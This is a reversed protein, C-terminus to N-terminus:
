NITDIYENIVNYSMGDYLIKYDLRLKFEEFSQFRFVLGICNFLLEMFSPSHPILQVYGYGKLWILNKLRKM